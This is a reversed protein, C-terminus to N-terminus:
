KVFGETPTDKPKISVNKENRVRFGKSEAKNTSVQPANPPNVDFSKNSAFTVRQWRHSCRAGGKHEWISYTDSGGAGFGANVAKSGMALIDEKRYLKNASIM